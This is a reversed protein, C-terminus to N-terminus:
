DELQQNFQPASVWLSFSYGVLFQPLLTYLGMMGVVSNAAFTDMVPQSRWPGEKPSNRKIFCVFIVPSSALKPVRCLSLPAM